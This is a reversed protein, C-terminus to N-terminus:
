LRVEYTRCARHFLLLGRFSFIILAIGVGAGCYLLDALVPNILHRLLAGM